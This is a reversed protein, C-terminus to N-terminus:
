SNTRHPLARARYAPSQCPLPCDVSTWSSWSTYGPSCAPSHVGPLIAVMTCSLCIRPIGGERGYRPLHRKLLIGEKEWLYSPERRRMAVIRVLPLLARHAEPYGRGLTYREIHACPRTVVTCPYYPPVPLCPPM